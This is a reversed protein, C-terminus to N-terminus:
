DVIIILSTFCRSSLSKTFVFFLEQGACSHSGVYVYPVCYAYFYWDVTTRRVFEM